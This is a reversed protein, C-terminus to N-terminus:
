RPPELDTGWLTAGTGDRLSVSLRGDAAIDAHGFFQSTGGRPSQNARIGTKVFEVKPGFTGDMANPGFTGANIPGGVFEWFPDFDTFAAREPSYHHAATYHVDATIFVVGTVRNRKFARLVEALERERGLPLGPDGNAPGEQGTGDPVVIGIPLDASIVKWTARSRSVERILWDRQERGLIPTTAQEKNPTNEGKYTRMDLCFVDLHRGRSVKRHIRGPQHRRQNAIPQYEWFAQRAREALVNVRKESYRDDTLVEGPWWNNVTEHDDWQAVVPTDAYFARVNSDMLNYRHRGRFERLTEAVKSVEETVLNRWVKGDPEVVQAAIPGDAYITDGCHIFLDPNTRHMAAYATMGGIDPNIGWGQGATDGTWVFSTAADRKGRGATRFRATQLEGLHGHDNEFGLRIDHECGPALGSLDLKATFDSAPTAWPGRVTRHGLRAVLRGPRDARAWLVAGSETVDGSMVGSTLQVRDRRVLAPAAVVSSGPAALTLGATGALGGALLTRRSLTM